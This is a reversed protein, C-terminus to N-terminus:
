KIKKFARTYNNIFNQGDLKYNRLLGDINEEVMYNNDKCLAISFDRINNKLKEVYDPTM